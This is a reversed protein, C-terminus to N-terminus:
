RVKLCGLCDLMLPLEVWELAICAIDAIAVAYEPSYRCSATVVFDSHACDM